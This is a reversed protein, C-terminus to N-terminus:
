IHVHIGQIQRKYVTTPDFWVIMHVSRTVAHFNVYTKIIHVHIYLTYTGYDEINERRVEGICAGEWGEWGWGGVAAEAGECGGEECRGGEVECCPLNQM